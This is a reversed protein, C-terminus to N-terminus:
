SRECDNRGIPPGASRGTAFWKLVDRWSVIGLPKFEADVIPICSIRHGLLPRAAEHIDADAPLTTPKRSMITHVQKNLTAADRDTEVTTGIYPSLANLLDRDSVM